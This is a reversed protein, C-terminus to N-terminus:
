CCPKKHGDLAAKKTIEAADDIPSLAFQYLNQKSLNPVHNLALVPVALTTKALSLINEKNLPGIVLKAGEKVAKQYLDATKGKETDYFHLAPKAGRSNDRSHAEIFGAKIAKAPDLFPGSEPLLIAISSPTEGYEDPLTALENPLTKVSALYINAPHEPNASRWGVLASNFNAPNQNRSALIKAVSMWEPLNATQAKQNQVVSEPLLGLTELIVGQNKKREDPKTLFTDLAIRAKASEM